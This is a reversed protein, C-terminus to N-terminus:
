LIWHNKYVIFFHDKKKKDVKKKKAHTVRKIITFINDIIFISFAMCKENESSIYGLVHSSNKLNYKIFKVPCEKIM